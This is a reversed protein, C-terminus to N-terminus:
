ISSHCFGECSNRWWYRWWWLFIMHNPVMECFIWTVLLGKGPSDRWWSCDGRLTVDGLLMEGSLWTAFFWKESSYHWGSRDGLLLVNGLLMEGFLWTVLFLKGPSDRWRCCNGQLIVDGLVLERLTKNPGGGEGIAVFTLATKCGIAAGDAFGPFDLCLVLVHVYSKSDFFKKSKIFANLM